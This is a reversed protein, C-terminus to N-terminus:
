FTTELELTRGERAADYCKTMIEIVHRAHEGSIIPKEGELICDILHGVNGGLGVRETRLEVATWGRIDLDLDDRFIQLPAGEGRRGVGITGRSGYIELSPAKSAPTCYGSDVVAFTADGFDLFILTNDDMGVSIERGKRPGAREIRVPDTLGSLCSVRKAPGLIGTITHLGYVGMDVVPGAGPQYYWDPPHLQAWVAPGGHSSIVRAYAVKGIAGGHVLEKIKQNMPSLMTGAAAGLKVGQAKAEEILATAQEVTPAMPKESCVHKGAKLGAMSVDFHLPIQTTNVLLEIGSTELMEELDTYAQPVNFKESAARARDEILDCVAILDAKDLAKIGPLYAGNAIHGCGVLGVKVKQAM